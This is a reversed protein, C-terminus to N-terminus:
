RSCGARAGKGQVIEMAQAVTLATQLAEETANEQGGSFIPDFPAESCCRKRPVVAIRQRLEELDLEQVDVGDVLVQGQTADYFRPIFHVLTSKGSGTGGIIGITQRAPGFFASGPSPRRGQRAMPSGPM